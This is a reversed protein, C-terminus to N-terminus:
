HDCNVVSFDNIQCFEISQGISLVVPFDLSGQHLYASYDSQSPSTNDWNM